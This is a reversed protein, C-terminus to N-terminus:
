SWIWGKAHELGNESIQHYEIAFWTSFSHPLDFTYWYLFLFDQTIVIDNILVM